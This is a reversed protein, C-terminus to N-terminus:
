LNVHPIQLEVYIPWVVRWKLVLTESCKPLDGLVPLGEEITVFTRSCQSFSSWGAFEDLKVMRSPPIALSAMNNSLIAICECLGERLPVVLDVGNYTRAYYIYSTHTTLDAKAAIPSWTVGYLRNMIVLLPSGQENNAM